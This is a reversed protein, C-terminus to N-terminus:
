RRVKLYTKNVRGAIVNDKLSLNTIKVELKQIQDPEDEVIFELKFLVREKM